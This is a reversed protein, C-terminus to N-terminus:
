VNIVNAVAFRSTACNTARWTRSTSAAPELGTMEVAGLPQAPMGACDEKKGWPQKAVRNAPPKKPTAEHNSGVERFRQPVKGTGQPIAHYGMTGWPNGYPEVLDFSVWLCGGAVGSPFSAERMGLMGKGRRWGDRGVKAM